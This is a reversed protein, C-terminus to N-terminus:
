DIDGAIMICKGTENDFSAKIQQDDANRWQYTKYTSTKETIRGETGGVKEVFQEYTVGDTTALADQIESLRSFDSNQDMMNGPYEIHIITSVLPNGSEDKDEDYSILYTNIAIDDALQWTYIKTTMKPQNSTNNNEINDEGDQPETNEGEEAQEGGTTEESTLQASWGVVKGMDKISSEPDLKEMCQFVDGCEALGNGAPGKHTLKWWAFGGGVVVIALIIAAITIKKNKDM